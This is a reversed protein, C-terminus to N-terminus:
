DTTAYCPSPSSLFKKLGTPGPHRCSQFYAQSLYYHTHEEKRIMHATNTNRTARLFTTLVTSSRHLPATIVKDSTACPSYGSYPKWIKLLCKGTKNKKWTHRIREWRQGGGLGVMPKEQRHFSSHIEILSFSALSCLFILDWIKLPFFFVQNLLHNKKQHTVQSARLDSYSYQLSPFRCCLATPKRLEGRLFLLDTSRHFLDRLWCVISQFHLM